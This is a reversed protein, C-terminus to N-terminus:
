SIPTIYNHIKGNVANFFEYNYLEIDHLMKIMHNRRTHAEELSLVIIKSNNSNM